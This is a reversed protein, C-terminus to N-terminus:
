VLAQALDSRYGEGVLRVCHPRVDPARDDETIIGSRVVVFRVVRLDAATRMTKKLFFRCLKRFRVPKGSNGVRRIITCRGM